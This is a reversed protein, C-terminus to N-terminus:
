KFIMKKAVMGAALLLTMLSLNAAVGRPAGNCGDQNCNCVSVKGGFGSRHYCPRDPDFPTTACQRITRPEHSQGLVEFEIYQQQTRCSVETLSDCERLFRSDGEAISLCSEEGKVHSSCVHCKLGVVSNIRLYVLFSILLINIKFDM